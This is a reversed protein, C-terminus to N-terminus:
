DIGDTTEDTWAGKGARRDMGHTYIHKLVQAFLGPPDQTGPLCYQGHREECRQLVCRDPLHLSSASSAQQETLSSCISYIYIHRQTFLPLMDVVCVPGENKQNASNLVLKTYCHLLHVVTLVLIKYAIM